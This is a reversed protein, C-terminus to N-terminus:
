RVAAVVSFLTAGLAHPIILGWASGTRARIIGFLAGTVLTWAFAEPPLGTQLSMGVATTVAVAVARGRWDALATFATGRLWLEMAAALILQRLLSGTWNDMRPLSVGSVRYAAMM